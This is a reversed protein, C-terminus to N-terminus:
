CSPPNRGGGVAAAARRRLMRTSMKTKEEAALPSGDVAAVAGPASGMEGEGDGLKGGDVSSHLGIARREVKAADAAAAATTEDVM